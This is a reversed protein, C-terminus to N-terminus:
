KRGQTLLWIGAIVGLVTLPNFIKPVNDGLSNLTNTTLSEVKTLIATAAIATFIVAVIGLAIIRPELIGAQTQSDNFGTRKITLRFDYYNPSTIDQPFLFGTKSWEIDVKKEAADWLKLLDLIAPSHYAQYKKNVRFTLRSIDGPAMGSIVEGIGLNSQTDVSSVGLGARDAFTPNKKNVNPIDIYSTM